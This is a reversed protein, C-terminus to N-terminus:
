LCMCLVSHCGIILLRPFDLDGISQYQGGIELHFKLRESRGQELDKAKTRCSKQFSVHPQPFGLKNGKQVLQVHSSTAQDKFIRTSMNSIQIQGIRDASIVVGEPKLPLMFAGLLNALAFTAVNRYVQIDYHRTVFPHLM